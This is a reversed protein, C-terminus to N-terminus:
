SLGEQKLSTQVAERSQMRTFFNEVNQYQKRDVGLHPLWRLVVYLYCDALCIESGMLYNSNALTKDLFQLKKHLIPRFFEEKISDPIAANLPACGKHLETAVYNIWGIVQYRPLGAAPFLANGNHDALYQMIAANETLLEGNDLLLGSVTGKPNIKYYDEGSATQHTKLDVECFECTVHLENIVIRVALSCTGKAYYLKM